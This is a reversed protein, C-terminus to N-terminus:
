VAARIFMYPLPPAPSPTQNNAYMNPAPKGTALELMTNLRGTVEIDVGRSSSAAPTITVRDILARLKPIAELRAAPNEALAANLKAVQARYDAIVAPHLAVVPLHDLQALSAALTDREARAKALVARIEVFEDAGNAVAEVLREVKAVAETHRRKIRDSERALEKARRAYDLHYERVYIEILEPDLMQSQLGALVRKEMRSTTITRNNSCASHGGERHTGCGWRDLGIVSWGRGCIGCVALGSLM